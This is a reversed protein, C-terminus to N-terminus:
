VRRPHPLLCDCVESLVNHVINLCLKYGQSHSYFPSSSWSEVTRKIQLDVPFVQTYLRLQETQVKLENMQETLAKIEDQQRRELAKIEEQHKQKLAKMEEQQRKHSVALLSFHMVLGDKLHDPMNRRPLQVKCGVYHFECEIM